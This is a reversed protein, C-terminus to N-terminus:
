GDLYGRLLDAEKVLGFRRALQELSSACEMLKPSLDKPYVSAYVDGTYCAKVLDCLADDKNTVRGWSKAESLTRVITNRVFCDEDFGVVYFDKSSSKNLGAAIRYLLKSLTKAKEQNCKKDRKWRGSTSSLLCLPYVGPVSQEFLEVIASVAKKLKLPTRVCRPCGDITCSCRAKQTELHWMVCEDSCKCDTKMDLAQKLGKFSNEVHYCLKNHLVTATEELSPSKYKFPSAAMYGSMIRTILEVLLGQVEELDPFLYLLQYAHEGLLNKMMNLKKSMKHFRYIRSADGFMACLMGLKGDDLTEFWQNWESFLGGFMERLREIMLERSYLMYGNKNKPIYFEQDPLAALFDKKDEVTFTKDKVTNLLLLFPVTAEQVKMTISSYVAEKKFPDLRNSAFVIDIGEFDDSGGKWHLFFHGNIQRLFWGSFFSILHHGFKKKFKENLDFLDRLMKEIEPDLLVKIDVDNILSVFDMIEDHSIGAQLAHLAVLLAYPGGGVMVMDPNGPLNKIRDIMESLTKKPVMIDPSPSLPKLDYIVSLLAHQDSTLKQGAFWQTEEPNGIKLEDKFESKHDSSDATEQKFHESTAKIRWQSLFPVLCVAMKGVIALTAVHDTDRKGLFDAFLISGQAVDPNGNAESLLKGILTALENDEDRLCGKQVVKLEPSVAHGDVSTKSLHLPSGFGTNFDPHSSTYKLETALLPLVGNGDGGIAVRFGQQELYKIYRVFIKQAKLFNKMHKKSTSKPALTAPFHIGVYAVGEVVICRIALDALTKKLGDVDKIMERLEKAKKTLGCSKLKHPEQADLKPINERVFDFLGTEECPLDGKIFGSIEKNYGAIVNKIFDTIELVEAKQEGIYVTAGCKSSDKKVALPSLTITAGIAEFFAKLAENALDIESFHLICESVSADKELVDITSAVYNALRPCTERLEALAALFRPSGASPFSIREM